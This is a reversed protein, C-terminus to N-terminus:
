EDISVVVATLPYMESVANRPAVAVPVRAASFKKREGSTPVIRVHVVSPEATLALRSPFLSVATGVAKVVAIGVVGVVEATTVPVLEAHAGDVVVKV